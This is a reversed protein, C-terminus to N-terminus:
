QLFHYCNDSTVRGYIRDVAHSALTQALSTFTGGETQASRRTPPRQYMVYRYRTYLGSPACKGGLCESISSVTSPYLSEKSGDFSLSCRAALPHDRVGVNMDNFMVDGTPRPMSTTGQVASRVVLLIDIDANFFIFCIRETALSRSRDPLGNNASSSRPIRCGGFM